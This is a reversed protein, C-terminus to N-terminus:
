VAVSLRKQVFDEQELRSSRVLVWGRVCGLKEVLGSVIQTLTWCPGVRREEGRIVRRGLKEPLSGALMWLRLQHVGDRHTWWKTKIVGLSKM